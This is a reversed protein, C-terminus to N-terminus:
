IGRFITYSLLFTEKKIVTARRQFESPKWRNLNAGELPDLLTPTKVSYTDEVLECSSLFM